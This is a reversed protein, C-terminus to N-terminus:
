NFEPAAEGITWGVVADYFAKAGEADTTMLEYWVPAGHTSSRTQADARAPADTVETMTQEKRRGFFARPNLRQSSRRGPNGAAGRYRPDKRVRGLVHAQR